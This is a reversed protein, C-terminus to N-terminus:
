ESRLATVPDVGLARRAPVLTAVLAALVIAGCAALYATADTAAVGFLMAQLLRSLAVAGAVGLAVPRMGERVVMVRLLRDPAEFPLPRLLVTRVVTFIATNAGIGLALTVLAVAAFGPRRSLGRWAFRVDYWGDATVRRTTTGGKVDRVRDKVEEVRGLEFTAARRAEAPTKGARVREQVFLEFAGRVEDDLDRDLRDPHILNRWAPRLRSTLM